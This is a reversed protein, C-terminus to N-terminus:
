GLKRGLDRPDYIANRMGQTSGPIPAGAKMAHFACVDFEDAFDPPCPLDRWARWKCARFAGMRKRLQEAQEWPGGPLLAAAARLWRDRLTRRVSSPTAPLGLCASLSPGGDSMSLWRRLRRVLWVSAEADIRGSEVIRAVLELPGAESM